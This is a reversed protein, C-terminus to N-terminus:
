LSVKKPMAERQEAYLDVFVAQSRTPIVPPPDTNLEKNVFTRLDTQSYSNIKPILPPPPEEDTQQSEDEQPQKSIVVPTPTATATTTVANIKSTMEAMFKNLLETREKDKDVGAAINSFGSDTTTPSTQCEVTVSQKGAIAILQVQPINQIPIPSISLPTVTNTAASNPGATNSAAQPISISLLQQNPQQSSVTPTPQQVFTIPSAQPQQQQMQPQPQAQLLQQPIPSTLQSHPNSQLTPPAYQPTMMHQMQQQQQHHHHHHFPQNMPQYVGITQTSCNPCIPMLRERRARISELELLIEEHKLSQLETKKEVDRLKEKLKTISEIIM